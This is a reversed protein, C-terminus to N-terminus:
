WSSDEDTLSVGKVQTDEIHRRDYDFLSAFGYGGTTYSFTTRPHDPISHHWVPGGNDWEVTLSPRKMKLDQLLLLADVSSLHVYSLRPCYFGGQVDLHEPQIETLVKILSVFGSKNLTLSELRPLHRICWDWHASTSSVCHVGAIELSKLLDLGGSNGDKTKLERTLNAMVSGLEEGARPRRGDLDTLRLKELSASALLKLTSPLNNIRLSLSKLAPLETEVHFDSLPEGSIRSDIDLHILSPASSIMRLIKLTPLPPATLPRVISLNQLHVINPPTLAPLIHNILKLSDLQPFLSFSEFVPSWGSPMPPIDATIQFHLSHLQLSETPSVPSSATIADLLHYAKLETDSQLTLAHIRHINKRFLAILFPYNHSFWEQESTDSRPACTNTINVFVKLPCAGRNKFWLGAKQIQAFETGFGLRLRLKYWVAPHSHVIERFRRNVSSLLLPADANYASCYQFIEALLEPPLSSMPHKPPPLAPTFGSYMKYRNM